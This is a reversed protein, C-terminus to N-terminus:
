SDVNVAVAQVGLNDTIQYKIPHNRCRQRLMAARTSVLVSPSVSAILKHVAAAERYFKGGLSYTFGFKVIRILGIPSFTLIVASVLLFWLM